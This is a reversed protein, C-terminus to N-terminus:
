LAHVSDFLRNYRIVQPWTIIQCGLRRLPALMGDRDCTDGIGETSYFLFAARGVLNQAPVFGVADQVRSDQSNDRNDGMAFYHGAPVTFEETNDLPEDDSVEYIAHERGGPLTEIYKKVVSFRGTNPNAETDVFRRTVAEGNIHLIGAIVQIKDGPLGIIRKIYDIQPQRPQRFVAVDGRAPSKEFARGSFTVIGFPFSYQSYGYAYKEVFLYDGVLLTPYMSESPINFPEYLFARIVLAAVAAILVSKLLDMIEDAASYHEATKNQEQQAPSPDTM